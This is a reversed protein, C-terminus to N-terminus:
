SGRGHAFHRRIVPALVTDPDDRAGIKVHVRRLRGAHVAGGGDGVGPRARALEPGAGHRNMGVRFGARMMMAVQFADDIDDAAARPHSPAFAQLVDRLSARTIEDVHRREHRMLRLPCSGTTTFRSMAGASGGSSTAHTSLMWGGGFRQAFASM